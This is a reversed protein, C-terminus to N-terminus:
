PPPQEARIQQVLRDFVRRPDEVAPAEVDPQAGHCERELIGLLLDADGLIESSARLRNARVWESVSVDLASLCPVLAAILEESDRNGSDKRAQALRDRVQIAEDLKAVLSAYDIDTAVVSDTRRPVPQPL